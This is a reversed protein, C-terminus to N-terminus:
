FISIRLPSSTRRTGKALKLLEAFKKESDPLVVPKTAGAAQRPMISDIAQECVRYFGPYTQKVDDITDLKGIHAYLAVLVWPQESKKEVNLTPKDTRLCDVLEKVMDDRTM